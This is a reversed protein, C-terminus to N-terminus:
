FTTTKFRSLQKVSSDNVMLETIYCMCLLMKMKHMFYANETFLLETKYSKALILAKDCKWMVTYIGWQSIPPM